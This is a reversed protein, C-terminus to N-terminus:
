PTGSSASRMVFSDPRACSVSGLDNLFALFFALFFAIYHICDTLSHHIWSRSIGSRAALDLARSIRTFSLTPYPYVSCSPMLDLARPIRTFSLTPYPHVPCSPMLDLKGTSPFLPQGLMTRVAFLVINLRPM